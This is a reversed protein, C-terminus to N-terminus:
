AYKVWKIIEPLTPRKGYMLIGVRYIRACISVTVYITAMMLAICLAIQWFPPQEMMIRLFMLIPAFFPVLSLAVSLPASPARFIFMMFMVAIIIPMVVVFSLQQAEEESSAMAGVAASISSYLM